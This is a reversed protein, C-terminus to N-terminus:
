AFRCSDGEAFVLIHVWPDFKSQVNQLLEKGDAKPPLLKHWPFSCLPMSGIMEFEPWWSQELFATKGQVATLSCDQWMNACQVWCVPGEWVVNMRAFTTRDLKKTLFYGKPQGQAFWPQQKRLSLFVSIDVFAHKQPFAKGLCVHSLWRRRFCPHSSM